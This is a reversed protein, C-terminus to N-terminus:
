LWRLDLLRSHFFQKILRTVIEVDSWLQYVVVSRIARIAKSSYEQEAIFLAQLSTISFRSKITTVCTFTRFIECFKCAVNSNEVIVDYHCLARAQETLSYTKIFAVLIWGLSAGGKACKHKRSCEFFCSFFVKWKAQFMFLIWYKFVHRTEKKKNLHKAMKVLIITYPNKLQRQIWNKKIKAWWLIEVRIRIVESTARSTSADHVSIALVKPYTWYFDQKRQPPSSLCLLYKMNEILICYLLIRMERVKVFEQYYSVARVEM